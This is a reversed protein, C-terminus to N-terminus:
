RRAQIVAVDTNLKALSKMVEDRIYANGDKIETKIENLTSIMEERQKEMVSVKAELVATRESIAYVSIGGGGSIAVFLAPLILGYLKDKTSKEQASM